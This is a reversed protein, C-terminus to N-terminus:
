LVGKLAGFVLVVDGCQLTNELVDSRPRQIPKSLASRALLNTAKFKPWRECAHRSTFPQKRIAYMGTRTGPNCVRVDSSLGEVM